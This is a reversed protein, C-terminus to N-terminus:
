PNSRRRSGPPTQPPPPSQLNPTHDNTNSPDQNFSLFDSTSSPDLANRTSSPVLSISRTEKAATSLDVRKSSKTKPASAQKISFANPDEDEKDLISWDIEQGKLGPLRPEIEDIGITNEVTCGLSQCVQMARAREVNAIEVAIKKAEEEELSKMRTREKVREQNIMKWVLKIDRYTKRKADRALRREAKGAQQKRRLEKRVDAKRRKARTVRREVEGDPLDWLEIFNEEGEPVSVGEPLIPRPPPPRPEFKALKKQQTKSIGPKRPKGNVLDNQPLQDVKVEGNIVVGSKDDVDRMEVDQGNEEAAKKAAEKAEIEQQRQKKRELRELTTVTGDELTTVPSVNFTKGSPDHRAALREAQKVAEEWIHRRELMIGRMKNRELNRNYKDPNRTKEM